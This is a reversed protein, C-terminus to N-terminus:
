GWGILWEHSCILGQDKIGASGTLYKRMVAIKTLLFKYISLPSYKGKEMNLIFFKGPHTHHSCCSGLVGKEDNFLNNKGKSRFAETVEGAQFTQCVRFITNLIVWLLISSHGFTVAYYLLKLNLDWMSMWVTDHM